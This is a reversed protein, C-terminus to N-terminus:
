QWAPLLEGVPVRWPSPRRHRGHRAQETPDGDNPAPRRLDSESPETELLMVGGATGDVSEDVLM